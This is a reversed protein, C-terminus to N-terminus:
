IGGDIIVYFLSVKTGGFEGGLVVVFVVRVENGDESVDYSSVLAPFDCEVVDVNRASQSGVVDFLYQDM